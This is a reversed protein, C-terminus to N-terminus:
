GRQGIHMPMIVHTFDDNSAPLIVGRSTADTTEIITQASNLVGLVDILYRVNFAIEIDEGEVSAGIEEVNDGLEAAEAVIRVRAPGETSEGSIQLRVMNAADRAFIRARRIARLFEGTDVVTRTVHSSPLIQRYDPFNGEILQSVLDINQMHFLVQNRKQTVLIEVPDEQDGMIRAVEQLARAPIIVRFSEPVEEPLPAKRVSIRFGDASAMTLSAGEFETLVGTLIPRTEDTAAAFTVQSIMERLTDPAVHIAKDQEATPIIPFDSADIGKLQAQFQACHIQLTQTRVNLAMDIREPPSSNVLDTVVRAPVSIEGEEEVQAGIWCTIGIELNTAALKLRGDDTGVYINELVPLTSRSAVARGVIAVGKALNEQLCSVRM